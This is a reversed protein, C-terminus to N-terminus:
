RSSGFPLPMFHCTGVIYSPPHRRSSNADYPVVYGGVGNTGEVGAAADTGSPQSGNPAWISHQELQVNWAEHVRQQESQFLQTQQPQHTQIPLPAATAAMSRPATPPMTYLNLESSANDATIAAAPMLQSDQQQEQTVAASMSVSPLSTSRIPKHEGINHAPDPGAFQAAPLFHSEQQQQHHHHHYPRRRWVPDASAEPVDKNLTYSAYASNSHAPIVPSSSILGSNSPSNKHLYRQFM